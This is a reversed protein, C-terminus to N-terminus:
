RIGESCVLAQRLQDLYLIDLDTEAGLGGASYFHIM